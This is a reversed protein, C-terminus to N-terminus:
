LMLCIFHVPLSLCAVSREFQWSEIPSVLTPSSQLHIFILGLFREGETIPDAGPAVVGRPLRFDEGSMWNRINPLTHYLLDKPTLFSSYMAM